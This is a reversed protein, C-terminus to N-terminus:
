YRQRQLSSGSQTRIKLHEAIVIGGGVAGANSVVDVYGIEGFRVRHGNVKQLALRAVREGCQIEAAATTMRNLLNNGCDLIDGAM